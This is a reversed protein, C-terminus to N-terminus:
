FCSAWRWAFGPSVLRDSALMRVGFPIFGTWFVDSRGVEFLGAFGFRSSHFAMTPWPGQPWNGSRWRSCISCSPLNSSNKGLYSQIISSYKLRRDSSCFYSRICM